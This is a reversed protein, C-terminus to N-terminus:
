ADSGRVPLNVPLCPVALARAAANQLGMALGPLAILLPVHAERADPM